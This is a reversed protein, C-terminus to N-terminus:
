YVPICLGSIDSIFNGTLTTSINDFVSKRVEKIFYKEGKKLTQKAASKVSPHLGKKCLTSLAKNTSKAIENSKKLATTGEAGMAGFTAGMTTDIATGIVAEKFSKEGSKYKNYNQYGSDFASTIAGVAIQGVVGGLGSAAFAGSVVGCAASLFIENGSGGSIATSIASIAGGVVAGIIVNWFDGGNDERSVPNNGCYAYMNFGLVDSTDVLSDGNVFRGTVPDYYRSQLYYLGSEADFYYGRYRFPNQIALNATSTIETTGTESYIHLTNGWSDYVYRAYLTGDEKRLEEVDGRSNCIPYLTFKTGDAKIRTIAAINGNVDYRYYFRIDGRKEYFLKDGSYEYEHVTSGVKKYTRLGDTNYKYSVSTGDLDATEMQRGQWTFSMNDRYTLPNGIKDYSISQGDYSILKDKWTGDYVYNITKTATELTGTTYPYETRKTINGGSDYTYVITKNM